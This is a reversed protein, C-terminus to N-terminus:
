AEFFSAILLGGPMCIMVAGGSGEGTLYLECRSRKSNLKSETLPLFKAVSRTKGKRARVRRSVGRQM